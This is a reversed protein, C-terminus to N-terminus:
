KCILRKEPETELTAQAFVKEGSYESGRNTPPLHCASSPEPKPGIMLFIPELGWLDSMM